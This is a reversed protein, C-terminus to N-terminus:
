EYLTGVFTSRAKDISVGGNWETAFLDWGGTNPKRYHSSGISAFLTVPVGLHALFAGFKEKCKTVKEADSKNSPGETNRCSKYRCGTLSSVISLCSQNFWLQSAKLFGVVLM